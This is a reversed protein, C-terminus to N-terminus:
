VVTVLPNRTLVTVVTEAEGGCGTTLAGPLILWILLLLVLLVTHGAARPGLPGLLLRALSPRLLRLLPVVRGLLLADLRHLLPPSGLGGLGGRM